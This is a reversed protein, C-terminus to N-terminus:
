RRTLQVDLCGVRCLRLSPTHAEIPHIACCLQNFAPAADVSMNACKRRRSQTQFRRSGETDETVRCDEDEPRSCVCVARFNCCREHRDAVPRPTHIPPCSTHCHAPHPQCIEVNGGGAKHKAADAAKPIKAEAVIKVKQDVSCLFLWVFYAVFHSRQTMSLQKRHRLLTDTDRQCIEVNGGGAKHKADTAKPIKAEAKWELKRDVAGAVCAALLSSDNLMRRATFM